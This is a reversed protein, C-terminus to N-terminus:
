VFVFFPSSFRTDVYDVWITMDDFRWDQVM